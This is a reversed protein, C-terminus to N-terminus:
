HTRKPSVDKWYLFLSGFFSSYIPQNQSKSHCIFVIHKKVTKSSSISQHKM